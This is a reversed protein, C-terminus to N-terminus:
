LLLTFHALGRTSITRHAIYNFTHLQHKFALQLKTCELPVNILQYMAALSPPVYEMWLHMSKNYPSMNCSTATSARAERSAVSPRHAVDEAVRVLNKEERSADHSTAKQSGRWHDKLRAQLSLM